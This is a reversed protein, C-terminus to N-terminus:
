RHDGDGVIVGRDKRSALKDLNAQGVEERAISDACTFGNPYRAALKVQNNLCLSYFDIDLTNCIAVLYFLVDGLENILDAENLPHDHYLHKKVLDVVEGVEGSLGLSYNALEETLSISKNRLADVFVPYIAMIDMTDEVRGYRTHNIIRTINFAKTDFIDALDCLGYNSQDRLYRITQIQKNSFSARGNNEGFSINAVVRDHSYAMNEKQTVLELNVINNNSRNYDLHNIVLGDPIDGNAWAWIVRHEMFAVDKGKIYMRCLYYGNSMMRSAPKGKKSYIHWDEGIYYGTATLISVFDMLTTKDM